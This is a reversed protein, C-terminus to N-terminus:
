HAGGRWPRCVSPIHLDVAQETINQRTHIHRRKSLREAGLRELISSYKLTSNKVLNTPEFEYGEHQSCTPFGDAKKMIAHVPECTCTERYKLFAVCVDVLSM